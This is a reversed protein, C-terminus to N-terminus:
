DAWTQRLIRRATATTATTVEALTLGKLEAVRSATELLWAPRNFRGKYRQPTLDPADSELVLQTLPLERVLELPKVAGQYTVTASISIAFGLRICDRASELSGSFAHMIGGVQDAREEQLIALTRGIAGRCHILVPLGYQRAISLQARFLREQRELNGLQRDLGIEGIAVAQPALQALLALQEEGTSEAVAPHIGYAPMAGRIRSCLRQIGPWGDPRIGPILWHGVGASRAEEVLQDLRGVLPECDLHCHTDTLMWIVFVLLDAQADM